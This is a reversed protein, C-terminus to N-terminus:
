AHHVENHYKFIELMNLPDWLTPHPCGHKTCEFKGELTANFGEEHLERNMLAIADAMTMDDPLM